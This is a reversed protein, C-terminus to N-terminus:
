CRKKWEASSELHSPVNRNREQPFIHYIPHHLSFVGGETHKMLQKGSEPSPSLTSIHYRLILCLNFFQCFWVQDNASLWLSLFSAGLPCGKFTSCQRMDMTSNLSKCRFFAQKDKQQTPLVPRDTKRVEQFIKVSDKYQPKRTWMHNLAPWANFASIIMFLFFSSFTKEYMKEKKQTGEKGREKRQEM